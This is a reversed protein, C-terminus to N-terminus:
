YEVSLAKRSLQINVGDFYPPWINRSGLGYLARGRNYEQPSILTTQPWLNLRVATKITSPLVPNKSNGAVVQAIQRPSSTHIYWLALNIAKLFQVSHNSHGSVTIVPMPGTSAGLWNLILTNPDKQRLAFYQRLSVLAWPVRHETWLSELHPFSVPRLSPFTRNLHLVGQILGLSPYLNAAYVMPLHNLNKLRFHPDPASSVIVLDPRNALYGIVPWSPVSESIILEARSRSSRKLQLHEDQFFHLKLAVELPLTGVSSSTNLTYRVVPLSPSSIKDPTQGCGTLVVLMGAILAWTSKRALQIM